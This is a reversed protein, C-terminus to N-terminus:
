PQMKAHYAFVRAAFGRRVAEDDLQREDIVPLDPWAATLAEAFLGRAAEDSGVVRVDAPGCSPSGAKLVYGSIRAAVLAEIREASFARMRDTLDAHTDAALLRIAGDARRVLDIPARPTGLGIEVEPCVPIWEVDRGFVDVLWAHRKDGGDYRVAQGLLCASVGVRPKRQEGQM